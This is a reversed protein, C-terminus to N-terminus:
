SNNIIQTADKKIREEYDSTKEAENKEQSFTKILTLTTELENKFNNPVQNLYEKIIEEETNEKHEQIEYTEKSTLKTTSKMVYYAGKELLKKMINNLDLDQPKGSKLQGQIRILIIKNKVDKFALNQTIEQTIQEPTKNEANIEEHIIEKTKVPIKTIQEKENKEYYYFSGQQLKELESFNAPFLPGPYIVNSYGELNKQETIHVHGGAYYNFGKPLLNISHSNMMELNKPKLEDISTHFLFIKFGKEKELEEKNMTEYSHKDLMGRLGNIGVLKTGTEEDTTFRLNLKGEVINGKMVNIGLGAEEIVDLMTKGSPSYDHSGAIFYVRIKEKNLKKLERVVDKVHDISPLATNFLDGAILFFDAKKELAFSISEKFALVSLDKLRPDRWSGIHVDAVHVFKM